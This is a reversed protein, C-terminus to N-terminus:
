RLRQGMYFVIAPITAGGLGPISVSVSGNGDVAVTDGGCSTCDSSLLGHVINCYTGGPLGTVLTANWTASDNNLAVFGVNGRGFALQNGTGTQVNTMEQGSTASRFAVMPYIDAWRHVFDWQGMIIANGNSDYPSASPANADTDSFSFIFGSQLQARGYPQALLYINALDFRGGGDDYLNLSNTRSRETDHNDVFVTVDASPDLNWAGGGDGTGVTASMQSIDLGYNGRFTDRIAYTFSFENVTGIPFYDSMTLNGDPVTEQTIFVREGMQTTAPVQAFIAELDAPWMYKAADVRFGDVGMSILSSLYQAIQGRVYTTETALDPMGDLRCEVVNDRSGGDEAPAYDSEQVVCYSHFDNPGFFPYQPSDPDYGSGDTATGPPDGAMQNFVADAYVRVGVGHCTAIMDRLEAASGMDGVLTQYNVPQYMNWWTDTTICAEPPSIQVGGFGNPGLFKTCEAAIDNWRWKFLQVYTDAPNLGSDLGADRAPRPITGGDPSNPPTVGADGTRSPAVADACADGGEITQPAGDISPSSQDGGSSSILCALSLALFALGCIGMAARWRRPGGGFMPIM